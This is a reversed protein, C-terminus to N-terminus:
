FGGGFGAAGGYEFAGAQPQYYSDPTMGPGPLALPTLTAYANVQAQQAAAEKEKEEEHAVEDKRESLLLDVKGTYEKVVQIIYPFSMDLLKNRWALELVNDPRLLDYCAYLCAAFCEQEKIQIFFELLEHALDGDGSAATTEMADKYLQDAKALDVAKRWRLNQKYLTASVRRFELLEHKELEAALGLQNFNDYQSISHHLAEYDEEEVLLENLADNVEAVNSKQVGILYDKILPLQNAKRFQLVVRAHDLRTTLVNLLDVLLDPHEDLYFGLSRYHVEVNSVKISVDKFLVHEWAAPSHAMMTNAANDWEDYQTYLYTLEKWHQQEDCVRILRPINIRNCFLKLHELLKEHRYRAYLAGLETFIGMHARELGIGNELLQILENFYGRRQYYESAEDLDDANVIISLGALQALRFEQADVCAFMVEKWCRPSNAKRAADVAAQFRNLKVLTSALRAWNPIHQFLIRAAEYIGENFLRDGCAQLNAQHTASIFDELAGIQNTKAYAYVLETDIKSDKHKKRVMLLYKVLEGYVEQGKAKEVVESYNSSDQALLYSAIAEAVEGSRLQAHALESWVPAENVKTAYDFARKLGDEPVHELLVLIAEVKKDFKKYIEFAEEALGHEIAKEAVATGDFNDLKHILVKVRGHDAKIATLILLNQLNANNSFATAQLVIKELLEILEVHLEKTMFAKVTISVQEPHRSEPLATSVQDILSRRDPNGEDLVKLWLAGDGREVVYRAQLKFMSNKTTCEILADDCSGRKYAVCALNPDRREAYKGVVLSDYFPNTSLFHEPNNNTDIIVKGLANHVHPDTTGEGILHELFPTLLKLRHRSEVVEVLKDVPLLSRVSLLLNNIFEDPAEADLLAGVVQPAKGPSVKQVYGEIYRLLNNNYLFTTLDEVMDFRDCVNILPRADPLKMEMLLDKVQEPPYVNSERTVREVEKIQQTKAAAEIYKYHEKPDESMALRSGLYFYLGPWANQKELLEMVKASSLQDTYEKAINVVLQLNQQPNTVLMEKLCDLAWEKSLTGFFETLTVPDIAHTNVICRKIDVIDTYHQLARMYLGAKECLQAVRPKDYHTLTGNALIADAVQPNTILNIELLKTQLVAHQPLDPSLADLLFATAERVMNRQLFLEAATNLDLQPPVQKVAMKALAVAGAPNTMMLSQLLFMYDMKQGTQGTYAVLASIDGKEALAGIIKTSSGCGQYVKLALDKDGAASLMDGMEESPELKGENWWNVLLEKKNQSLVLRTLEGSESPNLNGKQLLLGLYVLIPPKQGPQPAVAKLRDMTVKTRLLGKPSDAAVEAAEKFAGSAFLQEFQQGVLAEAGPLNGRKAIALALGLNQLQGSVFPVMTVENVTGLIVQGRRNVAYFGGTSPSGVALFIPDPSIRNRYVATATELDYVFLLGLKTIVYVLGYKDSIQLSVPFDDAFEAPFFLEAQRKVAVGPAGGLEIVHLKSVIAGDKLTKQAFAILNSPADRGTLKVSAFAAAHAELPQSKMQEFSHLQMFGKALQPREPAGATIGILVSWKLDATTRYSIIQAGALNPTREFVKVPPADPAGEISWHYVAGATVLGLMNPNIWKWYEVTEPMQYAKLKTKTDLNFVQLNDGATGPTVAKLAIVKKDICMLASDASIQRRTPAMPNAMDIIVVTNGAEGQERVTVYRESEATVARFNINAPNVGLATLQLKENVTIPAAAM